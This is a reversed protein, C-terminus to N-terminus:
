FNSWEEALPWTANDGCIFTL